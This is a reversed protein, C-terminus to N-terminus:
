HGSGEGSHAQLATLNARRMMTESTTVHEKLDLTMQVHTMHDRRSEGNYVEQKKGM